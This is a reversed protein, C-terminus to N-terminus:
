IKWDRFLAHRERGALKLCLRISRVVRGGRVLTDSLDRYSLLLSQGGFSNLLLEILVITFRLEIVDVVLLFFEDKLFLRDCLRLRCNTNRRRVCYKRYLLALWNRNVLFM